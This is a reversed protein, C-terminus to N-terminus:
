VEGEDCGTGGGARDVALAQAADGDPEALTGHEVQPAAIGNGAISGVPCRALGPIRVHRHEGGREHEARGTAVAGLRRDIAVVGAAAQTTAAADVRARGAAPWGPRSTAAVAAGH